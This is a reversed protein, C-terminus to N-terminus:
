GPQCVLLCVIEIKKKETFIQSIVRM